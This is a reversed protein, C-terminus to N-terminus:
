SEANRLAVNDELGLYGAEYRNSFKMNAVLDPLVQLVVKSRGKDLASWCPNRLWLAFMSRCLGRHYPDLCCSLILSLRCQPM